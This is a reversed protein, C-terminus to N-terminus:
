WTQVEFKTFQSIKIHDNKDHVGIESLHFNLFTRVWEGNSSWFVSLKCKCPMTQDSLVVRVRVRVCSHQCKFKPIGLQM